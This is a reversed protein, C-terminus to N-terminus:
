KQHCYFEALNEFWDIIRKKDLLGFSDLTLELKDANKGLEKSLNIEETSSYTEFSLYPMYDLIKDKGKKSSIATNLCVFTDQPLNKIYTKIQETELYDQAQTAIRRQQELKVLASDYIKNTKQATQKGLVRYQANFNINNIKLNM